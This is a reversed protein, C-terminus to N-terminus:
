LLIHFNEDSFLIANQPIKQAARQAKLLTEVKFASVQPARPNLTLSSLSEKVPLMARTAPYNKAQNMSAALGTKL